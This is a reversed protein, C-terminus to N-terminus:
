SASALEPPPPINIGMTSGKATGTGDGNFTWLEELATSNSSTGSALFGSNVSNFQAPTVLTLCGTTGTAGYTGTLSLLTPPPLPPPLQAAAAAACIMVVASVSLMFARQM